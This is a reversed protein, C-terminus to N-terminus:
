SPDRAAPLVLTLVPGPSTRTISLRGGEAGALSRALALGIGHGAGSTGRRDFNREPDDEPFGSGEDSVDLAVWSGLTRARLMVAGQGHQDANGILVDLIEAVVRPAAPTQAGRTDDLARLPRGHKALPARWRREADSVISAVPTAAGARRPADRAVTLLTEITAELRDV